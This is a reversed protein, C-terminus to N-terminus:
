LRDKTLGRAKRFCLVLDSCNTEAKLDKFTFSHKLYGRFIQTIQGKKEESMIKEQTGNLREVTSALDSTM